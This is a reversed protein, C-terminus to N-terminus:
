GRTNAVCRSHHVTGPSFSGLYETGLVLHRSDRNHKSVPLMVSDAPATSRGPGRSAISRASKGCRAAWAGASAAAHSLVNLLGASSTTVASSTLCWTEGRGKRGVLLSILLM